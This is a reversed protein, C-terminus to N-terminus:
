EGGRVRLGGAGDAEIFKGVGSGDALKGALVDVVGGTDVADEVFVAGETGDAFGAHERRAVTRGGDGIRHHSSFPQDALAACRDLVGAGLFGFGRCCHCRDLSRDDEAVAEWAELALEAACRTRWVPSASADGARGRGARELHYIMVAVTQCTRVTTRGRQHHLMSYWRRQPSRPTLEAPVPHTIEQAVM